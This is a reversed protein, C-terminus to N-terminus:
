DIIEYCPKYADGGPLKMRDQQIFAELLTNMHQTLIQDGKLKFPGYKEIEEMAGPKINGAVIGSFACRLSAVLHMKDQNLHLDLNSMNDHTPEFPHQLLPDIILSWNFGYSDNTRMREQKVKEICANMKQAVLAPNAIIIEYMEQAEKGIVQGIFTDIAEFYSRSEEPGTLILPLPIDKNAPNFKVGLIYLFEEFTGPGGPFILIGHGLRTFAELRKEIDPM